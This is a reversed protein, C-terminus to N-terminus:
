LKNGNNNNNNGIAATHQLVEPPPLLWKPRVWCFALAQWCGASGLGAKAASFDRQRQQDKGIAVTHRGIDHCQLCPAAAVPKRGAVGGGREESSVRWAAM